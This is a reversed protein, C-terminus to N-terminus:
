FNNQIKDTQIINIIFYHQYKWPISIYLLKKGAKHSIIVYLVILKLYLM